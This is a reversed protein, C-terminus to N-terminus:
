LSIQLMHMNPLEAYYSGSLEFVALILHLGYGM